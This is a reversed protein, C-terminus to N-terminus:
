SIGSIQRAAGQAQLAAISKLLAGSVTDRAKNVSEYQDPMQEKLGTLYDSLGINPNYFMGLQNEIAPILSSLQSSNLQSVDVGNLKNAFGELGQTVPEGYQGAIKNRIYGPSPKDLQNYLATAYGGIVPISGLITQTLNQNGEAYNALSMADTIAQAVIAAYPVSGSALASATLAGVQGAQTISQLAILDGQSLKNNGFLQIIGPLAGLVSALGGGGGGSLLPVTGSGVLSNILGGGGQYLGYLDRIVGAYNGSQVDGILGALSSGAGLSGGIAGGLNVDNSGSLGGQAGGSFGGAGGTGSQEFGQGPALQAIEEPSFGAQVLSDAFGQSGGFARALAEPDIGAQQFWQAAEPTLGAPSLTLETTPTGYASTPGGTQGLSRILDLAPTGPTPSATPSQFAQPVQSRLDSTGGGQTPSATQTGPSEGLLGAAKTSLGLVKSLISLPDTNSGVSGGSGGAASQGAVTGGSAGAGGQSVSGADLGGFGQSFSPAALSSGLGLGAALSPIDSGAGAQSLLQSLLDPGGPMGFLGGNTGATGSLDSQGAGSFSGVGPIGSLTVVPPVGSLNDAM